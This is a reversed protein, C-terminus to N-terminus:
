GLGRGKELRRELELGTWSCYRQRTTFMVFPYIECGSDRLRWFHLAKLAVLRGLEM